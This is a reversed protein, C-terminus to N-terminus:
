KIYSAQEIKDKEIYIANQFAIIKEREYEILSFEINGGAYEILLYEKHQTKYILLFILM